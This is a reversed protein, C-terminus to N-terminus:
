LLSMVRRRMGAMWSWRGAQATMAGSCAYLLQVFAHQHPDIVHGSSYTTAFSRVALFPEQEM